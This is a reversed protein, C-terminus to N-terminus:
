RTPITEEDYFIVIWTDVYVKRETHDTAEDDPTEADPKEKITADHTKRNKGWKYKLGGVAQENKVVHNDPCIDIMKEAGHEWARLDVTESQDEEWPGSYDWYGFSEASGKRKAEADNVYRLRKKDFQVAAKFMLGDSEAERRLAASISGGPNDPNYLETYLRVAPYEYKWSKSSPSNDIVAKGGRIWDGVDLTAHNPDGNMLAGADVIKQWEEKTRYSDSTSYSSEFKQVLDGDDNAEVKDLWEYTYAYNGRQHHEGELSRSYTTEGGNLPIRIVPNDQTVDENAPGGSTGNADQILYSVRPIETKRAYTELQARAGIKPTADRPMNVNITISSNVTGDANVFEDIMQDATYVTTGGTITGWIIKWLKKAKEKWGEPIKVKKAATVTSSAASASAPAFSAKVSYYGTGSNQSGVQLTYRYGASVQHSIRFNSGSGSNEDYDLYGGSYDWLYGWTDINGTTELTLTGPYSVQFNYFHYGNGRLYASQSEEWAGSTTPVPFQYSQSHTSFAGSFLLAAVLAIKGAKLFSRASKQALAAKQQAAAVAVVSIITLLSTKTKM